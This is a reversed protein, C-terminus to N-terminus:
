IWKLPLWKISIISLKVPPLQAVKVAGQPQMGVMVAHRADKEKDSEEGRREEM